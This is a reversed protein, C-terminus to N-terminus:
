CVGFNAVLLLQPINKLILNDAPDGGRQKLDCSIQSFFNNFKVGIVTRLPTYM